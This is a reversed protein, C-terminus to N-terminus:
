LQGKTVRGLCSSNVPQNFAEPLSSLGPPPSLPLPLSACARGRGEGRGGREEEKTEAEGKRGGGGRGNGEGERRSLSPRAEAAARSCGTSVWAPFKKRGKEASPISFSANGDSTGRAPFREGRGYCSIAHLTEFPHIPSMTKLAQSSIDGAPRQRHPTSPPPAAVRGCPCFSTWVIEGHNVAVTRLCLTALSEGRRGGDQRLASAPPQIEGPIDERACCVLLRSGTSTAAFFTPCLFSLCGEM